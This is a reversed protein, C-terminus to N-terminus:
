YPQISPYFSSLILSLFFLNVFYYPPNCELLVRFSKLFLFHCIFCHFICTEYAYKCILPFFALNVTSAFQVPRYTWVNGNTAEVLETLPTKDLLQPLFDCQWRERGRGRHYSCFVRVPM